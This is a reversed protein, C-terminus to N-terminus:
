EQIVLDVFQPSESFVGAIFASMTDLIEDTEPLRGGNRGVFLRGGHETDAGIVELDNRHAISEINEWDRDDFHGVTNADNIFGHSNYVDDAFRPSMVYGSKSGDLYVLVHVSAGADQKSLRIARNLVDRKDTDGVDPLTTESTHERQEVIYTQLIDDTRLETILSVLQAGDVTKINLDSATDKAQATFGSTTVVIVADVNDKQHKLSSYQQIDPSGVKTTSSYRKAQILQKQQFPTDKQAIVDVGRDRSGSTVTTDWGRKEWLDAVLEEFKYEDMEQLTKLLKEDTPDM